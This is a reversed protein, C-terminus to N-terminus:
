LSHMDIADTFYLPVLIAVALLLSHATASILFDVAGKPHKMRNNELMGAFLNASIYREKQRLEILFEGSKEARAKTESKTEVLTNRECM